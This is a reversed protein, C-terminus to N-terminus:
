RSRAAPSASPPPSSRTPAPGTSRGEGPHHHLREGRRVRELDRGELDGRLMDRARLAKARFEEPHAAARAAGLRPKRREIELRASGAGLRLRAGVLLLVVFISSRSWSSSATPRRSRDGRGPLPLRGRHRLPHLADRDHLLQRRLPLQPHGALPLGCEYPQSKIPNPRRPGIVGNLLAFAGGM